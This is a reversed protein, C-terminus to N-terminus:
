ELPPWFSLYSCIGLFCNESYRSSFPSDIFSKLCTPLVVQNTNWFTLRAPVYLIIQILSFGYISLNILLAIECSLLCTLYRFYPLSENLSLWLDMNYVWLPVEKELIERSQPKLRRKTGTVSPWCNLSCMRNRLLKQDKNDIQWQLNFIDVLLSSLAPTRWPMQCFDNWM